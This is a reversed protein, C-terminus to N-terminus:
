LKSISRLLESECEFFNLLVKIPFSIQVQDAIKQWTDNPKHSVEVFLEGEGELKSMEVFDKQGWGRMAWDARQMEMRGLGNNGKLVPHQVAYFSSDRLHVPPPSPFFTSQCEVELHIAM